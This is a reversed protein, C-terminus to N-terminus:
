KKGQESGRASPLDFKGAKGSREETTKEEMDTRREGGWVASVPSHELRRWTNFVM